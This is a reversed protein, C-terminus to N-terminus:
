FPPGFRVSAQLGLIFVKADYDFAMNQWTVQGTIADNCQSAWVVAGCFSFLWM